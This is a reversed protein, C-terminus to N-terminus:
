NPVFKTVHIYLFQIGTKPHNLLNNLKLIPKYLDDLNPHHIWKETKSLLIQIVTSNVFCQHSSYIIARIIICITQSQPGVKGLGHLDSYSPHVLHLQAGRILM